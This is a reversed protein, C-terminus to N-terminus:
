DMRKPIQIKKRYCIDTKDALTKQIYQHSSAAQRQSVGDKHDFMGNLRKINKKTMIKPKRGTGKKREHRSDSEARQIVNYVTSKSINKAMFHNVNFKKGSAKNELYFEFIRERPAEQKFKM